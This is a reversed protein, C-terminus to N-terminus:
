LISFNHLIKALKEDTKSLEKLANILRTIRSGQKHQLELDNQLDQEIRELRNEYPKMMTRRDWLIFGILGFIALLVLYVLSELSEFRQDVADFRQNVADFRQNVVKFESRLYTLSEIIERDSIKPAAEVAYVASSAGLFFSLTLIFSYIIKMYNIYHM